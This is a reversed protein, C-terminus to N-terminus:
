GREVEQGTTELARLQAELDKVDKPRANMLERAQEATATIKLERTEQKIIQGFVQKGLMEVIKIKMKMLTQDQSGDKKLVPQKLIDLMTNLSFNLLEEASEVYNGPACMFYATNEPEKFFREIAEDTWCKTVYQWNIEGKIEQVGGENLRALIEKWLRRRINALQITPKFLRLALRDLLVEETVGFWEPYNRMHEWIVRGYRGFHCLHFPINREVMTSDARFKEFRPDPPREPERTINPFVMETKEPGQSM